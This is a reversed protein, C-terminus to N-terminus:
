LHIIRWTIVTTLLWFLECMQLFYGALDGTIGGFQEMAMWRYYLFVLGSVLICAAGMVPHICLSGATCLVLEVFLIWKVRKQAADAFAAVTGDAKAKPFCVVSLGSLIRSYGYGMAVMLITGAEVDCFAGFTLLLYVIGYIIAFAGTHPDKLIELKEEKSKYSRRADVTDLFGDMHIGGNLLVPLVTLIAAVFFCSINLIHLGYFLGVSCAGIVCGVLPFFCMSYRMGKQSWEVRPMPLKSYMSFAIIFSELM